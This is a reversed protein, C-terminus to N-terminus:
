KKQQNVSESDASVRGLVAIGVAFVYKWLDRESNMYLDNAITLGALLYGTISTIPNKGIFFNKM